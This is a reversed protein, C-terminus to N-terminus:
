RLVRAGPRSLGAKKSPVKPPLSPAPATRPSPALLGMNRLTSFALEAEVRHLRSAMLKVINRGFLADSVIDESPPIIVVGSLGVATVLHLEEAPGAVFFKARKGLMAIQAADAKGCLEVPTRGAHPASDFAKAIEAAFSAVEPNGVIVPTIGKDAMARALEGYREAPWRHGPNNAPILLGFVDPLGFWSPDMNATQELAQASWSLDPLREDLPLGASKLLKRMGPGALPSPALARRGESLPRKPGIWQPGRFGRLSSRLDMSEKTGDLDYVLGYGVRKLQGVLEQRDGKVALPRTSVVRDFFPANKALRQLVPSTLLDVTAGPHAKRIASFAPEAEVFQRIGDRKIVLVRNATVNDKSKM